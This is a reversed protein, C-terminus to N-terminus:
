QGGRELKQRVGPADPHNPNARLWERAADDKASRAQSSADDVKVGNAELHAKVRDSMARAENQLGLMAQTGETISMQRSVVKGAIEARAMKNRALGEMTDVIMENGGPTNMMAVIGGRMMKADFDSTAGSGPVRQQPTLRNIWADLAQIDSLGETNIGVRGLFQKAVAEPGTNVRAMTQRLSAINQLDDSATSGQTFTEVFHEAMKEELKELGKGTAKDGVNVTTTAPPTPGFKLEGRRNEYVIQGPPPAPLKAMREPDIPRWGEGELDQRTKINGLHGQELQQRLQPQKLEYEQRAARDQNWATWDRTFMGQQLQKAEEYRKSAIARAEDSYRYPNNVVALDRQMQESPGPPRPEARLPPLQIPQPAPPITPPAPPGARPVIPPLTQGLPATPMDSSTMPITRTRNQAFATPPVPSAGPPSADSVPGAGGLSATPPYIPGGGGGGDVGLGAGMPAGLSRQALTATIADRSSPVAGAPGAPGGLGSRPGLSGPPPATAPILPVATIGDSGAPPAAAPISAVPPVPAAPQLLPQDQARAPNFLNDADPRPVGQLAGQAGPLQQLLAPNQPANRVPVDGPRPPPEVERPPPAPLTVAPPPPALPSTQGLGGEDTARQAKEAESLRQNEFRDAISEGLYTLGEGINQPAKRGRAALIAAIERRRKLEPYSLGSTGGWIYSIPDPLSYQEAM